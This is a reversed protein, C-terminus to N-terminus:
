QRYRRRPLMALAGLGLMITTTPEPVVQLSLGRSDLSTEWALQEPLVPLDVFDFSGDLSGSEWADLLVFRDGLGPQFGGLLEIELVGDLWADGLIRLQDSEGEGLGGLEMRLVNLFEPSGMTVTGPSNGPEFLGTFTLSGLFDGDGSVRGNLVLGSGTGEVIGLNVMDGDVTGSGQLNANPDVRLGATTRLRGGDLTSVGETIVAEDADLLVVDRWSVDIRGVRFGDTRTFDGLLVDGTVEINGPGDIARLVDVRAELTGSRAIEIPDGRRFIANGTVEVTGEEIVLSGTFANDGLLELRGPGVKRVSGQSFLDDVIDATIFSDRPGGIILAEGDTPDGLRIPHSERGGYVELQEVFLSGGSVTIEDDKDLEIREGTLLLEAGDDVDLRFDAYEDTGRLETTIRTGEGIVQIFNNSSSPALELFEFTLEPAGSIGLSSVRSSNQSGMFIYGLDLHGGEISVRGTRPYLRELSSGADLGSLILSSDGNKTLAYAEQGSVKGTLKLLGGPSLTVQTDETLTLDAQIEHLAADEVHIGSGGLRLEGGFYNSKVLRYSTPGAFQIGDVSKTTGLLDGVYVDGPSMGSFRVIDDAGPLALSNWNTEIFPPLTPFRIAGWERNVEGDWIFIDGAAFRTGALIALAAFGARIVTNRAFM